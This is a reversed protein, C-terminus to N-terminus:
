RVVDSYGFVHYLQEIWVILAYVQESSCKRCIERLALLADDARSVRCLPCRNRTLCLQTIDFLNHPPSAMEQM